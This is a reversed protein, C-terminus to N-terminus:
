SRIAQSTGKQPRMTFGQKKLLAPKCKSSAVLPFPETFLKHFDDKFAGIKSLAVYSMYKLRYFLPAKGALSLGAFERDDGTLDDYVCEGIMAKLKSRAEEFTGAEAILCFDICFAQWQNDACEAYCRLMLKEPRM